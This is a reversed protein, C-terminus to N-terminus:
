GRDAPESASGDGSELAAFFARGSAHVREVELEWRESAAVDEITLTRAGLRRHVTVRAQDRDLAFLPRGLAWRGDAADGVWGYIRHRSVAVLSHMPVHESRSGDSGTRSALLEPVAGAASELADLVIGDGATASTMLATAGRPDAWTAALVTDADGVAQQAMEVLTTEDM